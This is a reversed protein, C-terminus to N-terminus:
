GAYALVSSCPKIPYGEERVVGDLGREPVAAEGIAPPGADQERVAREWLFVAPQSPPPLVVAVRGEGREPERVSRRGV